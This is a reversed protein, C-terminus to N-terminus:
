LNLKINELEIYRYLFELHNGIEQTTASSISTQRYGDESGIINYKHCLEEYEKLFAHAKGLKRDHLLIPDNTPSYNLNTEDGLRKNLVELIAKTKKLLFPKLPEYDNKEEDFKRQDDDGGWIHIDCFSVIPDTYPHGATIHFPLFYGNSDETVFSENLEEVIKKVELYEKDNM